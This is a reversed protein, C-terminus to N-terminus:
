SFITFSTSPFYLLIITTIESPRSYLERGSYSFYRLIITITDIPRSHFERASFFFAVQDAAPPNRSGLKGPCVVPYVPHIPASHIPRPLAFASQFTNTTRTKFLMESVTAITPLIAQSSLSLLPRLPVPLQDHNMRDLDM